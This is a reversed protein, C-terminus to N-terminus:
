IRLLVFESTLDAFFYLYEFDPVIEEQSCAKQSEDAYRLM